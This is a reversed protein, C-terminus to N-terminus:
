DNWNTSRWSYTVKLVQHIASYIEQFREEVVLKHVVIEPDSVESFDEGLTRIFLEYKDGPLSHVCEEDAGQCHFEFGADTTVLKVSVSDHSSKASIPLYNFEIM